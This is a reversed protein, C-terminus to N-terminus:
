LLPNFISNNDLLNKENKSKLKKNYALSHALTNFSVFEAIYSLHALM